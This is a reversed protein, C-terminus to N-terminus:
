ELRYGVGPQNGENNSQNQQTTAGIFAMKDLQGDDKLLQAPTAIRDVTANLTALSPEALETACVRFVKALDEACGSRFSEM